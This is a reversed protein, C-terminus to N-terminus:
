KLLMSGVQAMAAASTGARHPTHQPEARLKARPLDSILWTCEWNLSESLM